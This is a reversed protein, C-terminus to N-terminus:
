GGASRSSDIALLIREREIVPTLKRFANYFDGERVLRGAEDLHEKSSSTLAETLSKLLATIEPVLRDRSKADVLCRQMLYRLTTAPTRADVEKVIEDGRLIDARNEIEITTRREINRLICGNIVVLEGPKLSLKLGM